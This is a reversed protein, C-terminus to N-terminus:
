PTVEMRGAMDPTVLIYLGGAPLAGGAQQSLILVGGLGMRNLLRMGEEAGLAMVATSMADATEASPAFVTASLLPTAVPELTRPDLIHCRGERLNEACSSTSWAGSEIWVAALYPSGMGERPDPLALARGAGPGFVIGSSGYSLVFARAGRRLLRAAGDLAHGKALGDFDLGAGPYMKLFRGSSLVVSHPACRDFLSDGSPTTGPAPPIFKKWSLYPELRCSFAGETAERYYESASFLLSFSKSPAHPVGDALANFRSIESNADWHSVVSEVRDVELIARELSRGGEGRRPQYDVELVTGMSPHAHHRWPPDGAKAGLSSFIFAFAALLPPLRM